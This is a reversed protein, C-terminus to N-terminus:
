RSEGISSGKITCSSSSTGFAKWSHRTFPRTTMRLILGGGWAFLLKRYIIIVKLFLLFFIHTRNSFSDQVYINLFDVIYIFYHINRISELSHQARDAKSKLFFM